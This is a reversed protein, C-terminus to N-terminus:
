VAETIYPCRLCYLSGDLDPHMLHGEDACADEHSREFDPASTMSPGLRPTPQDPQMEGM